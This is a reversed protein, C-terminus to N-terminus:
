LLYPHQLLQLSFFFVDSLIVAHNFFLDANGSFYICLYFNRKQWVREASGGPRGGPWDQLQQGTNSLNVKWNCTFDINDMRVTTYNSKMSSESILGLAQGSCADVTLNSVYLCKGQLMVNGRPVESLAACSVKQQVSVDCCKGWDFSSQPVWQKVYVVCSWPTM